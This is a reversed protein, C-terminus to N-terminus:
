TLNLLNFRRKLTQVFPLKIFFFTPIYFCKKELSARKGGKCFFIYFCAVTYMYYTCGYGIFGLQFSLPVMQIPHFSSLQSISKRQGHGLGINGFNLLGFSVLIKNFVKLFMLLLLLFNFIPHSLM